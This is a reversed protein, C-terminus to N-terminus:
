RGLPKTRGQHFSEERDEKENKGARTEQARSAYPMQWLGTSAFARRVFRRRVMICFIFTFASCNTSLKPGTDSTTAYSPIFRRGRSSRVSTATVEAAGGYQM